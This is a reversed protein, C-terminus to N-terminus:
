MDISVDVFMCVYLQHLPRFCFWIRSRVCSFHILSRIDSLFFSFGDRTPVFICSYLYYIPMYVVVVVYYVIISLRIFQRNM